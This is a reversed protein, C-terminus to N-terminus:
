GAYRGVQYTSEAMGRVVSVTGGEPRPTRVPRTRYVVRSATLRHVPATAGDRLDALRITTPRQPTRNDLNRLALSLVGVQQALALKQAQSQTVELTVTKVISPKDKAENADQDVGVVKINQLLVDAISTENDGEGVSRTLVLDVRDGPLVFGGVGAVDNVRVTAAYKDKDVLGSMSLRGGKDSVKSRLLPENAEIARLAVRPAESSTVEAVTRFAGAPLSDAPWPVEKVQQPTITAGFFLPTRAVVISTLEPGKAAAAPKVQGARLILQAIFVAAFGLLVAGALMYIPRNRM